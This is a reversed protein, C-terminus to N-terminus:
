PKPTLIASKYEHLNKHVQIIKYNFSLIVFNENDIKYDKNIKLLEAYGLAFDKSKFGHVVVFQNELDYIDKSIVNKYKLDKFRNKSSRM